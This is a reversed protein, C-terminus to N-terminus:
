RIINGILINNTIHVMGDGKRPVFSVTGQRIIRGDEIHFGDIVCTKDKPIRIIPLGSIKVTHGRVEIMVGRKM